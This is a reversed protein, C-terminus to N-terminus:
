EHLATYSSGYSQQQYLIRLKNSADFGLRYWRSNNSTNPDVLTEHWGTLDLHFVKLGINTSFLVAVRSRGSSRGVLATAASTNQSQVGLEVNTQWVGALKQRAKLKWGASPSYTQIMYFIWGNNADHWVSDLLSSNYNNLPEDTLTAVNWAGSGDPLLEIGDSGIRVLVHPHDTADLSLTYSQITSAKNSAGSLSEVSWASNAYHVYSLSGVTGGSPYTTSTLNVMAQPRGTSDLTFQFSAANYFNAFTGQMLDETNWTTGDHWLHRLISIAPDTLSPVLYLSHPHDQDDMKIISSGLRSATNPYIATWPDGNSFVEFPNQGAFAWSGTPRLDADAVNIQSLASATLSLSDARNLTTGSVTSSVTEGVNDTAVINYGYTGLPLNTDSYTTASPALTAVDTTNYGAVRRVIVHTATLSQNQWSLDVGGAKPTTVLQIPGLLPTRVPSPTHVFPTTYPDLVNAVRYLYYTAEKVAKDTYSSQNGSPLTLPIWDTTPNGAVDSEARELKSTRNAGYSSNWYVYVGQNYSDYSAYVNSPAALPTNVVASPLSPASPIQGKLNTVRYLFRTLEVASKDLCSTKAGYAYVNSWTSTPFGNIDCTAREVVLGDAHTSNTNWALSVGGQTGDYTASVVTPVALPTTVMSSVNSQTSKLSGLLNTARYIYTTFEQTGRDAFFTVAGAPLSLTVWPKTALGNADAETRELQVGTNHSSNAVWSVLVAGQNVDYTATLSSPSSPPITVASAGLVAPSLASQRVNSVRYVYSTGEQVSQDLFASFGGAPTSLASWAGIALGAANAETRELLMGDAQAFADICTLSVGGHVPDYIVTLASPSPVFTSVVSSVASDPSAEQGKLNTVVYVYYLDLKATKDLFTGTLGAPVDLTTWLGTVTGGSTCDARKVAVGDSVSSNGTWSLAVGSAGWDLAGVPQSPAVLGKHYLVENSYPSSETGRVARVRFYFDTSESSGAPLTLLFSSSASPLLGSHVKLYTGAGHKEELEYGDISGNPVLWQLNLTDAVAGTSPLLLAPSAVPIVPAPTPAPAVTPSSGGSGCGWNFLTCVLVFGLWSRASM